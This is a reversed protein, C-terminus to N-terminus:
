GKKRAIIVGSKAEAPLPLRKIEVLDAAQCMKIIEGETYSRGQDTGLLMNLAFLAPYLPGEDHDNLIFDHILLIGNTALAAAANKVLAAAHDAGLAHLVHSLWAIDQGEGLPDQLFNGAQFSIRESMGAAAITEIALAESGPLDFVKAQLQHHRRCFHISWSGLGGGVDLLRSPAGVELQQILQPALMSSLNHMGLLFDQQWEAESFLSRRRQPQGSRVSWELQNWSEVLHHQHRIINGLYQNSNADLWYRVPEPCRYGVRDKVLLDMATLARLLMGLARSDCDILEALNEASLSADSLQNFIGLRVGAQLASSQWYGGSTELLKAPDWFNHSTM